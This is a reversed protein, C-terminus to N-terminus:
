YKFINDSILHNTIALRHLSSIKPSTMFFFFYLIKPCKSMVVTSKPSTQLDLICRRLICWLEYVCTSMYIMRLWLLYKFLRRCLKAGGEFKNMPYDVLLITRWSADLCLCALKNRKFGIWEISKLLYLHKYKHIM